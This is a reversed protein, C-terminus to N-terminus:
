AARLYELAGGPGGLQRWEEPREVYYLTLVDVYDTRLAALVTRLEAAADAATRAGLQVCVVVAERRPGLGAIAESYADAGGPADAEGPWNLFNVGRAVADLVDDPTIETRGHSALGLRCVAKGFAGAPSSLFPSVPGQGRPDHDTTMAVITGRGSPRNLLPADCDPRMGM